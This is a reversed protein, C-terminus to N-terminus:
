LQVGGLSIIFTDIVQFLEKHEHQLFVLIGLSVVFLVVKPNLPTNLPDWIARPFRSLGALVSLGGLGRREGHLTSWRSMLLSM